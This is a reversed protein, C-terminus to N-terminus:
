KELAVTAVVARVVVMGGELHDWYEGELHGVASGSRV